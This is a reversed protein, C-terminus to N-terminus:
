KSVFSEIGHKSVCAAAKQKIHVSFQETLSFALELEYLKDMDIYSMQNLNFILYYNNGEFSIVPSRLIYDPEALLKEAKLRDYHDQPMMIGPVYRSVYIKGQAIDCESSVDVLFYKINANNLVQQSLTAYPNDDNIRKKSILGHPEFKKTCDYFVNGPRNDKSAKSIIKWHNFKACSIDKIEALHEISEIDFPETSLRHVNDNYFYPFLDNLSDIAAWFKEEPTASDIRQELKSYALYFFMARLKKDLSFASMEGYMTNVTQVASDSITSEWLVFLHFLQAKSLEEILKKSIEQLANTRAVHIVSDNPTLNRKIIEKVAHEDSVDLDAGELEMYIDSQIGSMTSKAEFYSAKELTLVFEPAIKEGSLAKKLDEIYEDQHTSWVMLIYPGNNESIIKRLMALVNSIISKSDTTTSFRLDCFVLRVGVLPSEPMEEPVGSYYLTTAGKESLLKILPLAENIQDDIVVVKSCTNLFM